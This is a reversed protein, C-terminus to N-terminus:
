LDNYLEARYSGSSYLSGTRNSKGNIGRKNQFFFSMDGQEEVAKDLLVKQEIPRMVPEREGQKPSLPTENTTPTSEPM